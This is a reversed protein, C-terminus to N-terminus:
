RKKIVKVTRVYCDHDVVTEHRIDGAHVFESTIEITSDVPLCERYAFHDAQSQIFSTTHPEKVMAPVTKDIRIIYTDHGDIKTVCLVNATTTVM